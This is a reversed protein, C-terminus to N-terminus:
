RRASAPRGVDVAVQNCLVRARRIDASPQHIRAALEDDSWRAGSLRQMVLAGLVALHVTEGGDGLDARQERDEPQAFGGATLSETLWRRGNVPPTGARIPSAPIKSRLLERMTDIVEADDMAAVDCGALRLAQRIATLDAPTPNDLDPM